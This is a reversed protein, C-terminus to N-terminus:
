NVLCLFLGFYSYTPLLLEKFRVLTFIVTYKRAAVTENLDREVVHLMFDLAALQDLGITRVRFFKVDFNNTKVVLILVVNESEPGITNFKPVLFEIIM